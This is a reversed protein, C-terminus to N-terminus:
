LNLQGKSGARADSGPECQQDDLVLSCDPDIDRRLAVTGFLEQPLITRETLAM